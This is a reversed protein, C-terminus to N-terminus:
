YFGTFGLFAILLIYAVLSDFFAGLERRAIVWVERM